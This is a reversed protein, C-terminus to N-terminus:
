RLRELLSPTAYGDPVEGRAIQWNRIANVTRPGMLGDVGLTDFGLATLRRQLERRQAETLAPDQPIAARIPPGGAIRDALHGVAIVYADATNYHELANFNRFTMFAPGKAGAPLLIVASGHDPVAEGNMDRVGLSAWYTPSQKNTDRALRYDFGEPLTVEVGWPQDLTWGADALFAATSALADSPDDGWIDRRGDGTFDVAHAAFSSPMFQTHGMAGAWSGVMADPTTDGDALIRLATLLQNEFFAGRRGEYALTALASLTPVDGRNAGFSSEVGWIAVVIEKNVGYEAEIRDLLAANERVARQGAAVRDDSVAIALYQYLPKTFESQNRDREVVDPLFAVGSLAADLVAGPLGGAEARSRFASLWPEFGEAPIPTSRDMSQAEAPGGPAGAAALLGLALAAVLTRSIRNSM